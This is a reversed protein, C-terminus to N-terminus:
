ALTKESQKKQFYDLTLAFILLLGTATNKIYPNLGIVTLGNNFLNLILLGVFAGAMSGTGGGFAIGGLIAAIIGQFRAQTIGMMNASQQRAAFTIGAFSSFLGCVIFLAYSIKRPNVGSLMAVQPNGGVIYIKRGINTTHLIIGAIIMFAIAFLASAPIFGWLMTSGYSRMVPHLVDITSRDAILYVLGTAISSTALTALFPAMLLENVLAANIVGVLVGVLIALLIAPVLAMGERLLVAVVMSCLTGNAGTSLDLKGSIMLLTIGITLFASIPLANIITVLNMPKLFVSKGAFVEAVSNNPTSLITFVVFLLVLLFILIFIRSRIFKTLSLKGM